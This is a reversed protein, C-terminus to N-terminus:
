YENILNEFEDDTLARAYPMIVLFGVWDSFWIPCLHGAHSRQWTHREKLNARFGELLSRWSRSRWAVYPRLRAVKVAYRKTLFVRRATGKRMTLGFVRFREQQLMSPRVSRRAPRIAKRQSM